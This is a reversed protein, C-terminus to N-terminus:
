DDHGNEGDLALNAMQAPNDKASKENEKKLRAIYASWKQEGCVVKWM